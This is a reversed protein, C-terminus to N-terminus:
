EDELLQFNVLVINATELLFENKVIGHIQHRIIHYNKSTIKEDLVIMTSAPDGNILIHIHYYYMM